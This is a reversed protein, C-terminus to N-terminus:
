FHLSSAKVMMLALRVQCHLLTKKDPYRRMADAFVYFESPLPAMFDVPIQLYEMDLGKVITDEEAIANDGSNTFAIYVVREFGADKLTYILNVPAMGAILKVNAKYPGEANM